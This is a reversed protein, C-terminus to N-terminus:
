GFLWHQAIFGAFFMAACSALIVATRLNRHQGTPTNMSVDKYRDM